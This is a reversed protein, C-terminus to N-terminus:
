SRYEICCMVVVDVPCQGVCFGAWDQELWLKFGVSGWRFGVTSGFNCCWKLVPGVWVRFIM